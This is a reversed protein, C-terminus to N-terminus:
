LHLARAHRRHRYAGTPSAGATVTVATSQTVYDTEYATVIVADGSDAAVATTVVAAQTTSPAAATESAGQAFLYEVWSLLDELTTGEPLAKTPLAIGASATGTPVGASITSTLMSSPIAAAIESVSAQSVATTSASPAAYTEQSSPAYTPQASSSAPAAYTTTTEAASSPAAYSAPISSAAASSAPTSSAAASSAPTSSAAASSAPASGSGGTYLAPGPMDYQDPGFGPYYINVFIGKDQATYLSTGVVGEPNDTGSSTIKLNICQPYNQAGGENNASHLAIIEHRAVYNGSAITDPIKVDWKNSDTILKDSAWVGEDPKSNGSILGVADIKFWKLTTKDADACDGDCKALYTIVPGHHSTPWTDWNFSVTDGGNVPASLAGPAAGSHCIMDPSTYDAVYGNDKVTDSWAILDPKTNSYLISNNFGAYVTNSAGISQLHGHASVTSALTALAAAAAIKFSM